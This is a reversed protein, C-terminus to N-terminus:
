MAVSPPRSAVRSTPSCGSSLTTTIPLRSFRAACDGIGAMENLRFRALALETLARTRHEGDLEEAASALLQVAYPVSGNYEELLGLTFLARGHAQSPSPGDLVRAVLWRTRDADGALMADAAATVLWDAILVADGVLMAAGEM